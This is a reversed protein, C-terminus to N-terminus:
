ATKARAKRAKREAEKAAQRTFLEGTRNAFVRNFIECASFGM